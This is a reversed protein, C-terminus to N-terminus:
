TFKRNQLSVVLRVEQTKIWFSLCFKLYQKDASKKKGKNEKPVVKHYSHVSLPLLVLLLLLLLFVLFCLTSITPQMVCYTSIMAVKHVRLRNMQYVLNISCTHARCSLRSLSQSPAPRDPISDRHPRSKGGTWVPGTAWGTEQLIPVPDKGHTFHPRSRSSVM